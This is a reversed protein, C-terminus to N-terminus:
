NESLDVDKEDGSKESKIVPQLEQIATEKKKLADVEDVEDMTNDVKQELRKVLSMLALVWEPTAEKKPADNDQHKGKDMLKVKTQSDSKMARPSSYKQEHTEEDYDELPSKYNMAFDVVEFSENKLRKAFASDQRSTM